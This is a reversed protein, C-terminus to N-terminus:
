SHPRSDLGSKQHIFIGYPDLLYLLLRTQAELISNLAEVTKRCDEFSNYMPVPSFRIVDPEREDAVIGLELLQRAIEIMLGKGSPLFSLSLQSGRARARSRQQENLSDRIVLRTDHDVYSSLGQLCMELYGTLEESRARLGSMGGPYSGFLQLSSYLSIVSLVDRIQTCLNDREESRSMSIQCRFDHRQTTDSGVQWDHPGGLKTPDSTWNEHVFLGAIAGPGANLYKYTLASHHGGITSYNGLGLPLSILADNPDLGHMEIQSTFAYLRALIPNVLDTINELKKQRGLCRIRGLVMEATRRNQLGLSNGCLYVCANSEDESNPEDEVAGTQDNSETNNDTLKYSTFM